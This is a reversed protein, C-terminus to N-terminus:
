RAAASDRAGQALAHARAYAIRADEYRGLKTLAMGLGFYAAADDPKVVAAAAYRKSASAYDKVRVLANGENILAQSRAV